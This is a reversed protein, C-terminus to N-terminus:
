KSEILKGNTVTKLVPVIELARNENFKVQGSAGRFDVQALTRKVAEPEVSGSKKFAEAFAMVADYGNEASLGPQEHFRESFSKVFWDAPAPSDAVILGELAAGAAQVRHVDVAIALMPGDYGVKRLEAAAVGMQSYNMLFIADPKSKVIRLAETRLDTQDPLSDIRAAISGGLKKFENEFIDSQLVEAESQSGFIAVKAWGRQTALMALERTSPDYIPRINFLNGAAESFKKANASPTIMIVGRDKSVVPLLALAGPSWSPGIFFNIKKLDKLNRYASVAGAGSVSERTDEAILRLKRGLVGGEQNIRDRALEAGHTAATGWDACDGTSCLLLGISIETIEASSENLQSLVAMLLCLTGLVLKPWRTM